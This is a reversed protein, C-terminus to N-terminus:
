PQMRMCESLLEEKTRVETAMASLKLEEVLARAANEDCVEFRIQYKWDERTLYVYVFEGDNGERVIQPEHWTENNM